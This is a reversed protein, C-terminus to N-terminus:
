YKQLKIQNENCFLELTEDGEHYLITKITNNVKFKKRFMYEGVIIQGIGLRNLKTKIKILEIEYKGNEILHMFFKKNNCYKFRFRKHDNYIRVADIRRGKSNKGFINKDGIFVETFTVGTHYTCYIKLLDNENLTTKINFDADFDPVYYKILDILQSFNGPYNNDGEKEYVVSPRFYLKLKWNYGTYLKHLYNNDWKEINIKLLNNFFTQYDKTNVINLKNRNSINKHSNYVLKLKNSENTIEVTQYDDFFSGIEFYLRKFYHKSYKEEIKM